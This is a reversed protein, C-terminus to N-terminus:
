GGVWESVSRGPYTRPSAIADLLFQCLKHLFCFQQRRFYLPVHYRISSVNNNIDAGKGKGAVQEPWHGHHLAAGNSIVVSAFHWATKM